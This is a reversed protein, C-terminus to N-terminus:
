AHRAKRYTPSDLRSGNWTISFVERSLLAAQENLRGTGTLVDLPHGRELLFASANQNQNRRLRSRGGGSRQLAGLPGATFFAHSMSSADLVYLHCDRSRRGGATSCRSAVSQNSLVGRYNGDTRRLM